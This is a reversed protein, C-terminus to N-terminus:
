PKLPLRALGQLTRVDGGEMATIAALGFQYGCMIRCFMGESAYGYGTPEGRAYETTFGGGPLDRRVSEYTYNTGLRRGCWRCTRPRRQYNYAVRSTSM